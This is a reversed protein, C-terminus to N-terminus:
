FARKRWDIALMVSMKRYKQKQIQDGSKNPLGTWRMGMVVLWPKCDQRGAVSTNFSWASLLAPFTGRFTGAGLPTYLWTGFFHKLGRAENSSRCFSSARLVKRCNGWCGNPAPVKRFVKEASKDARPKLVEIAPQWSQLDLCEQLFSGQLKLVSINTDFTPVGHGVRPWSRALRIKYASKAPSFFGSIALALNQVCLQGFLPWSKTLEEGVGWGM